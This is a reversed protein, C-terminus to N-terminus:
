EGDARVGGSRAAASRRSPSSSSEDKLAREFHISSIRFELCRFPGAELEWTAEMVFPVRLGDVERYDSLTGTWPTLASPARRSRTVLTSGSAPRSACGDGGCSARLIPSSCSGAARPPGRPTPPTGRGRARSVARRPCADRLADRAPEAGRAYRRRARAHGRRRRAQGGPEVRERRRRGCERHASRDVHPALDSAPRRAM